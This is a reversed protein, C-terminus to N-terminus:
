RSSRTMPPKARRFTSNPTPIPPAFCFDAENFISNVGELAVGKFGIGFDFGVQALSQCRQGGVDADALWRAGAPGGTTRRARVSRAAVIQVGQTGQSLLQTLALAGNMDQHIQLHFFLHQNWLLLHADIAAAGGM